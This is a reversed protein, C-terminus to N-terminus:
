KQWATDTERDTANMYETLVLSCIKLIYGCWELKGCWVNHCYERPSGTVPAFIVTQVMIQSQTSSQHVTQLENCCNAITFCWVNTFRTQIVALKPM